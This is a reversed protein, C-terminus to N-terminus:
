DKHANVHWKVTTCDLVIELEPKSKSKWVRNRILFHMQLWRDADMLDNREQCLHVNLAHFVGLGAM